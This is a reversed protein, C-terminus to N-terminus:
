LKYVTTTKDISEIKDIEMNLGIKENPQEKKPEEVRNFFALLIAVTLIVLIVLVMIGRTKKRSSKDYNGMLNQFNKHREIRHNTFKNHRLRIDFKTM